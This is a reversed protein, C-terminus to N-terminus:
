LKDSKIFVNKHISVKFRLIDPNNIQYLHSYHRPHSADANIIKFFLLERAPATEKM